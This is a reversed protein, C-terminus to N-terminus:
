IRARDLARTPSSVKVLLSGNYTGMPPFYKISQVNLNSSELQPEIHDFFLIAIDHETIDDNVTLEFVSSPQGNVLGQQNLLQIPLRIPANVNSVAQEIISRALDTAQYAM